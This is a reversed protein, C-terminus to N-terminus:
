KLLVPYILSNIPCTSVVTWVLISESLKYTCFSMIIVICLPVWTCVHSCSALTLKLLAGRTLRERGLHSAEKLKKAILWYLIAVLTVSLLGLLGIFTNIVILVLNTSPETDIPSCLRNKKDTIFNFRYYTFSASLIIAISTGLLMLRVVFQKNKFQSNLPFYVIMYRIITIMFILFAGLIYIIVYLFYIASCLFSKSWTYQFFVFNAQFQFDSSAILGLTFNPLIHFLALIKVMTRFSLNHSQSVVINLILVIFNLLFGVICNLFSVATAFSSILLRSCTHTCLKSTVFKVKEEFCCFVCSSSYVTILGSFPIEFVDKDVVLINNGSVDLYALRYLQRFISKQLKTINNWKLNIATTKHIGKFARSNIKNIKNSELSLHLLNLLSSFCNDKLSTINGQQMASLIVSIHNVRNKFCFYKFSNKTLHVFKVSNLKGLFSVIRDFSSIKSIHVFQHPYNFLSTITDQTITSCFLGFTVCHCGEPCNLEYFNCLYEDLGNICDWRGDCISKPLINISTNPCHYFGKRIKFKCDTEDQGLPCDYHGDCVLRWPVCYYGPCKYMDTCITKECSELHSGNSCYKLVRKGEMDKHIDYKCIIDISKCSIETYIDLSSGIFNSYSYICKMGLFLEKGPAYNVLCQLSTLLINELHINLLDITYNCIAEDEGDTCDMQGDCLKISSIMAFNSCLFTSNIILFPKKTAKQGTEMSKNSIFDKNATNNVCFLTAKDLIPKHCPIRIWKPYYKNWVLMMVCEHSQNDSNSRLYQHVTESKEINHLWKHIFYADESKWLIHETGYFKKIPDLNLFTFYSYLFLKHMKWSHMM